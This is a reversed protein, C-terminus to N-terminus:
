FIYNLGVNMGNPGDQSDFPKGWEVSVVFNRNMVLKIGLGASM